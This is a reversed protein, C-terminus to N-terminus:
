SRSILRRLKNKDTKGNDNRPIAAISIFSDITFDKGLQKLLIHNINRQINLPLPSGACVLVAKEGIVPDPTGIVAFDIGKLSEELEKESREPSINMGGKIILDKKRGTIYLRGDILEAFDGTYFEERKSANSEEHLYRLFIWDCALVLEGDGTIKPRVGDLVYGACRDFITKEPCNGANFLTESLGFSEYLNVQYAREFDKRLELPLPATAIIITVNNEACYRKGKDDKDLSLILRLMTPSCWFVNANFAMPSEWFRLASQVNFRGGAAIKAGFLMPLIFQNLMGAMYSPPFNHYFVDKENFGFLKGLAYASKLLNGASHVVGKPISTTGSTFTVLLEKEADANRLQEILKKYDYKNELRSSLINKYGTLAQDSIICDPNAMDLETKIEAASKQSDTLVARGGFLLCALFAKFYLVADNTIVSVTPTKSIGAFQEGLAAAESLFEGYSIVGERTLIFADDRRTEFTNALKEIL